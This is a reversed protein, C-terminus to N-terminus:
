RFDLWSSRSMMTLTKRNTNPGNSILAPLGASNVGGGAILFGRFSKNSPAKHSRHCSATFGVRQCHRKFIQEVLGPVLTGPIHKNVYGRRRVTYYKSGLNM